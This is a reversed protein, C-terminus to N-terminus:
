GKVLRMILGISGGCIFFVFLPVLILANAQIFAVIQTLWSIGATVLSGLFTVFAAANEALTPTSEM